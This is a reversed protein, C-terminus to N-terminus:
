FKFKSWDWYFLKLCFRTALPLCGSQFFIDVKTREVPM